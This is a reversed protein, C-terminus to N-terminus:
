LLKRKFNINFFQRAAELNMIVCDRTKKAELTEPLERMLRDAEYPAGANYRLEGNRKDVTFAKRNARWANRITKIAYKGTVEESFYSSLSLPRIYAPLDVTHEQLIDVLIESSVKLIDPADADEELEEEELETLETELLSLSSCDLESTLLSLSSDDPEETESDESSLEDM